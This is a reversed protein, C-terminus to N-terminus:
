RLTTEDCVLCGGSDKYCSETGKDSGRPNADFNCTYPGSGGVGTEECHALASGLPTNKGGDSICYRKAPSAAVAHPRSATNDLHEHCENRATCSKMRECALEKSAWPEKSYQQVYKGCGDWYAAHARHTVTTILMAITMVIFSKKMSM